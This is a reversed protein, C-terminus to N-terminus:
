FFTMVDVKKLKEVPKHTGNGNCVRADLTKGRRGDVLDGIQVLAYSSGEVDPQLTYHIKSTINGMFARMTYTHKIGQEEEVVIKIGARKRAEEIREQAARRAAPLSRLYHTQSSTVPNDLRKVLHNDRDTTIQPLPQCLDQLLGYHDSPCRITRLAPFAGAEVSDALDTHIQGSVLVDWHLYQLNEHAFVPKRLSAGPLMCPSTDQQFTFRRLHKLNTLITRITPLSTIELNVLALNQISSAALSDAWRKIGRDSVGPVDQLRFSQLTSPVARLTLDNFDDRHFHMVVLHTLKPLKRFSAVFARYNMCGQSKGYLLLTRLNSWYDSQNLFSETPNEYQYYVVEAETGLITRKLQSKEDELLYVRERLNRRTSLSHSFRDFHHNYTPYIGEVKELNPCLLILSSVVSLLDEKVKESGTDYARQVDTLHLIRVAAARDPRERLTRRLLKLKSCTKSKRRRMELQCSEDDLWITHYLQDEALWSWRKSTTALSWVDKLYCATCTEDKSELHAWKLQDLMCQYVEIPLSKFVREPLTKRPPPPPYSRGFFPRKSRELEWPTKTLHPVTLSAQWQANFSFASELSQLSTLSSRKSGPDDSFWRSSAISSRKSSSSSASEDRYKVAPEHFYAEMAELQRAKEYRYM